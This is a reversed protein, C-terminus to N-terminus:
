NTMYTLKEQAQAFPAAGLMLACAAFTRAFTSNM